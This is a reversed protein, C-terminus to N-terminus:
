GSAAGARGARDTLYRREPENTTLRAALRYADAAEAARGARDLLHARVAHYRHHRAMRPDRSLAQLETLARHPGLVMAVAVARNLSVMAGPEHAALVDYLALIQPWDTDAATAADAHLSAIAAQVQYPGPPSTSLARTVLHTGEEVLTRDWRSRDQEDLPVLDGAGDVRSARRADTLLMLALLGAVEGDDPRLVHAARTLRIAERSLEVDVLAEGASSAYGENFVLYLVHLVARIRDDSEAGEPSAFRAGAQRIAQKARSIRQAMTTEPVLYAHAIQATTLGAVARLTLAVQSSPSLVPHCCLMLLTLTDDRDAILPPSDTTLTSAAALERRARASDSRLRDVLRRSAVTILWARPDDPRGDRPWQAAAALLAEQVADEAADFRGHQRVLAGLVQPALDRWLDEIRPHTGEDSRVDGPQTM